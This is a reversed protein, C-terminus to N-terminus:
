GFIKKMVTGVADDKRDSALQKRAGQHKPDIRLTTRFETYARSKLGFSKYYLGLWYHLEADHPALRLAEIFHEEANKRMAPHRSMARALMGRYLASGPSIQVLQELLPVAGEWDQLKFHLKVDRVLRAEGGGQRMRRMAEERSSAAVEAPSSQETDTEGRSEFGGVPAPSSAPPESPGSSHPRREWPEPRAAGTTSPRTEIVPSALEEASPAASEVSEAIEAFAEGEVEVEIEVAEETLAIEEVPIHSLMSSEDDGPFEDEGEIFLENDLSSLPELALEPELLPPKEIEAERREASIRPRAAPRPPPVEKELSEWPDDKM